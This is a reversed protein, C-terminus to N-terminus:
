LIAIRNPLRQHQFISRPAGRELLPRSESVGNFVALGPADDSADSVDIIRMVKKEIGFQLRVPIGNKAGEGVLADIEDRMGVVERFDDYSNEARFVSKHVRQEIPVGM